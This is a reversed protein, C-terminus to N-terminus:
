HTSHMQSTTWSGDLIMHNVSDFAKAFGPYIVEVAHSEDVMRTMDEELVLLNSLCSLRPEFFQDLELAEM